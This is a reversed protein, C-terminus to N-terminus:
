MLEQINGKKVWVSNGWWPWMLVLLNFVCVCAGWSSSWKGYHQQRSQTEQAWPQLICPKAKQKIEGSYSHFLSLSFSLSLFLSNPEIFAALVFWKQFTLPKQNNIFIHWPIDRVQQIFDEEPTYVSRSWYVSGLLMNMCWWCSFTVLGLQGGDQADGMGFVFLCKDGGQGEQGCTLGCLFGAGSNMAQQRAPGRKKAVM